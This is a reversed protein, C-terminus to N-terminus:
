LTVAPASTTCAQDRIQSMGANPAGLNPNPLSPILGEGGMLGIISWENDHIEDQHDLGLDHGLEHCAVAQKWDVYKYSQFYSDNLKTYGSVIHSEPDVSVGTVGLWGNIGYAYNCVRVADKPARCRLRARDRTTGAEVLLSVVLSSSWDDIAPGLHSDWDPTTSNVVKLDYSPTSRAWHFGNWSHQAFGAASFFAAVVASIIAKKWM